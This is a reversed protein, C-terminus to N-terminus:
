FAMRLLLGGGTLGLSLLTIKGFLNDNKIARFASVGLQNGLLAIPTCYLLLRGLNGDFVEPRIVAAMTLGVIQLALIFPQTLARSQEKTAGILGNWVVLASGPFGSFSGIFGGFSGIAVSRIFNSSKVDIKLSKPKYLSYLCYGILFVGVAPILRNVPVIALLPTGVMLGIVGGVIYPTVGDSTKSPRHKSLEAYLARFSQAQTILSLAMLLPIAQAPSLVVLCLCGIASFGFGSLGSMFAALFFVAMLFNHHDTVANLEVGWKWFLFLSLVVFLLSIKKHLIKALIVSSNWGNSHSLNATSLLQNNRDSYM